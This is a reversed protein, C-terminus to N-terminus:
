RTLGATGDVWVEGPGTVLVDTTAPDRLLPELLGAGGFERRLLRLAALVDSHGVVGGAEDRVAEAMVADTIEAGTGALRARVRDILEATM